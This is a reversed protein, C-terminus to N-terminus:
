AGGAAAAAASTTALECKDVKNASAKTKKRSPEAKPDRAIKRKKSAGGASRHPGKLLASDSPVQRSLVEMIDAKLSKAEDRDEESDQRRQQRLAILEQAATGFNPVARKAFGWPLAKDDDQLEGGAAIAALIREASAGGTSELLHQCLGHLMSATAGASVLANGDGPFLSPSGGFAPLLPILRLTLIRSAGVVAYAVEAETKYPLAALLGVLLESRHIAAEMPCITPPSSTMMPADAATESAHAADVTAGFGKVAALEALEGLLVDMFQGRSAKHDFHESFAAAVAAFRWSGGATATGCQESRRAMLESAQRLGQGLRAQFMKSSGEVLRLLLPRTAVAADKPGAFCAALLNPLASAPHMVGMHSLCTLAATIHGATGPVDVEHLAAFLQPQLTALRQVAESVAPKPQKATVAAKGVEAAVVLAQSEAAGSEEAATKRRSKKVGTEAAQQVAAAAAARGAGVDPAAECATREYVALVGALAEATKARTIRQLAAGDGALGGAGAHLEAQSGELGSLGQRLCELMEGRVLQSHRRLVFGLAPLVLPRLAPPGSSALEGLVKAALAADKCAGAPLAAATVSEHVAQLATSSEKSIPEVVARCASLDSFELFSGLVWCHSVLEAKASATLSPRRALVDSLHTLSADVHPLVQQPEQLLLEAVVCFCEAAARSLEHGRGHLLSALDELLEEALQKKDELTGLRDLLMPLADSFIRCAQAALKAAAGGPPLLLAEPSLLKLWAKIEGVHPQLCTPYELALQEVISARAVSAAMSEASAVAIGRLVAALLARCSKDFVASTASARQAQLLGRVSDAGVGPQTAFFALHNMAIEPQKKNYVVKQISGLVVQRVQQPEQQVRRLLDAANERLDPQDSRLGSCADRFAVRRVQAAPDGIRARVAARYWAAPSAPTESQLTAAASVPIALQHSALHSALEIARLRVLPSEDQLGRAIAEMLCRNSGLALDVQCCAALSSIAQRRVFVLPSGQVQTMLAELAVLRARWLAGTEEAHLTQRYSHMLADAASGEGGNSTKGESSSAAFHGREQALELWTSTLWHEGADVGGGGGGSKSTRTKGKSCRGRSQQVRRADGAAAWCLHFSASLVVHAAPLVASDLITRGELMAADPKLSTETEPQGHLLRDVLEQTVGFSKKQEDNAMTEMAAVSTDLPVIQQESPSASAAPVLAGAWCQVQKALVSLKESRGSAALKFDLSLAEAIQGLLRVAFERQTWSMSVHQAARAIRVLGKVFALLLLPTTALRPDASAALLERVLAELNSWAESERENGLLCRRLIGTALDAAMAEAEAHRQRLGDPHVQRPQEPVAQAADPASTPASGDAGRSLSYLKAPVCRAAVVQLLAATYSSKEAKPPPAGGAGKPDASSGGRAAPGAVGDKEALSQAQGSQKGGQSSGAAEPGSAEVFAETVAVKLERSGTQGGLGCLLDGAAMAAASKTTQGKDRKGGSGPAASALCKSAVGIIRHALPTASYDSAAVAHHAARFVGAIANDIETRRELATASPPQGSPAAASPPAAARVCASLFKVADPVADELESSVLSAGIVAHMDLFITTLKLGFLAYQFQNSPRDGSLPLSSGSCPKVDAMAEFAKLLLQDTLHKTAANILETAVEKDVMLALDSALGGDDEMAPQAAAESWSVVRAWHVADVLRSISTAPWDTDMRKKEAFQRCAAAVHVAWQEVETVTAPPPPLTNARTASQSAKPEEEANGAEQADPRKWLGLKDQMKRHLRRKKSETKKPSQLVKRPSKRPPTGPSSPAGAASKKATADDAAYRAPPRITSRKRLCPAM